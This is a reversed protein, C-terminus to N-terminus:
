TKLAWGIVYYRMWFLTLGLCAMAANYGRRDLGGSDLRRRLFRTYHRVYPVFVNDTADHVEVQVM